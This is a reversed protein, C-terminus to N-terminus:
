ALNDVLIEATRYATDASYSEAVYAAAYLLEVISSEIRESKFDVAPYETGAAMLESAARALVEICGLGNMKKLFSCACSVVLSVFLIGLAQVSLIVCECESTQESELIIFVATDRDVLNLTNFTDAM